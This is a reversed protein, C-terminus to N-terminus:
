PLINMIFDWIGMKLYSSLLSITLRSTMCCSVFAFTLYFSREEYLAQVITDKVRQSRFGYDLLM